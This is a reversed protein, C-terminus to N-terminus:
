NKSKRWDSFIFKLADYYAPMVTSMHTEAAYHKYLFPLRATKTKVLLSDLALVDTHFSTKDAVGENADSFFLKRNWNGYEDLEKKALRLMYKKDWWLSPSVAIYANFIDPSYFLCNLSSLGGFSHGALVSYNNARYHQEVYPMLETAIFYLFKSNGGSEENWVYSSSDSHGYYDTKSATPTLDRTRKTNVIGVVIAEPMAAVDPRSLYICEQVMMEFHDEADLLYIVPYKKSSDALSSEPVHIYVTRDEKMERSSLVVTEAPPWAYNKKLQGFLTLSSCAGAFMLSTYLFYRLLKM